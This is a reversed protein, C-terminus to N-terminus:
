MNGMVMVVHTGEHGDGCTNWMVIVVHTQGHDNCVNGHCDSYTNGMVMVVYTGERGDGCANGMAV